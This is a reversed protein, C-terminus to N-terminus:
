AKHAEDWVDIVQTKIKVTKDNEIVGPKDKSVSEVDKNGKLLEVRVEDKLETLQKAHAAAQDTIQKQLSEIQTKQDNSTATLTEVNAKVEDFGVLKANMEEAQTKMAGLSEDVATKLDDAFTPDDSDANIDKGFWGKVLSSIKSKLNFQSM